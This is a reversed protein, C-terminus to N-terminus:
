HWDLKEDGILLRVLYLVFLGTAALILILVAAKNIESGSLANFIAIPLTETKFAMSGALTITAGFEGIAKAWCLLASALISRQALPLTISFFVQHPTAGLSRAVNELRSPIQEFSAKLLRIAVGVVSIFQALIVGAVTYVFSVGLRQVAQGTRTSFFILLLAGLAVPSLIQPLETFTDIFRRGWFQYRSLAYAVPIALLLAFFTALTATTLSLQLSFLLRKSTLVSWFTLLRSFFVLSLLLGLFFLTLLTALAISLKRLSM